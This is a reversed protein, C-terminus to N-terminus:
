FNYEMNILFYRQTLNTQSSFSSFDNTEVQNFTKLNLLNNAVIIFNIKDSFTYYYEFDIFNYRNSIEKLNPVFVDTQLSSRSKKNIKYSIKFTNQLADVSNTITSKSQIANFTFIETFNLKTLFGTRMEITNKFSKNSNKRIDTSNVFNPYENLSYDTTLGM